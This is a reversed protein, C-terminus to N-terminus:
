NGVKFISIISTNTGSLAAGELTKSVNPRIDFSEGANLYIAGSSSMIASGNSAAITSFVTGEKYIQYYFGSAATTSTYASFYYVGAVPAEFNWGAGTTVANNTDFIKTDFNSPQTPSTPSNISAYYSAAVTSTSSTGLTNFGGTDNVGQYSHTALDYVITGVQNPINNLNPVVPAVINFSSLQLEPDEKIYSDYAAFATLSSLFLCMSLLLKM